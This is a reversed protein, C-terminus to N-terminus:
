RFLNLWEELFMFLDDDIENDLIINNDIEDVHIIDLYRPNECTPIFHNWTWCLEKEGYYDTNKLFYKCKKISKLEMLLSKKLNIFSKIKLMLYKNFIVIKNSNSYKKM